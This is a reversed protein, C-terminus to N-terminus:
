QDPVFAEERMISRGQSISRAYVGHLLRNRALDSVAPFGAYEGKETIDAIVGTKAAIRVQLDLIGLGITSVPRYYSTLRRLPLVESIRPTLVHECV